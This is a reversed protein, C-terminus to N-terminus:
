EGNCQSNKYRNVEAEYAQLFKEDFLFPDQKFAKETKQYHKILYEWMAAKNNSLSLPFRSLENNERVKRELTAPHFLHLIDTTIARMGAIMGMQHAQLEILIDRTAMELPMFGPVHHCLMLVLISQGTPLLKFPNNANSQPQSLSMAAKTEHKLQTRLTNLTVIGQTLQSVFRGLQYMKQEDFQLNNIEKLGMGELLAALLKGELKISNKVNNDQNQHADQDTEELNISEKLIKEEFLESSPQSFLQSASTTADDVANLPIAEDLIQNLLDDNKTSQAVKIHKDSFLALPDVQQKDDDQENEDHSLLTTPTHDDLINEQQFTTDANFMAIPDTTRLQLADFDITPEIEALPDIPNREKDYQNTVLPNNDNIEPKAQPSDSSSLTDSSTLIRELDDWIESATLSHEANIGHQSPNKKIDIVQIQYNGINLMDGDRIEVQRNPALPIMNLLVESASGQNNIQCEGDASISVIAQLRAITQGDDPLYWNNETSRGITGGPPSFDHSLQPPQSSGSHNVITFRM